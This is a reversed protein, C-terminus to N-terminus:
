SSDSFFQMWKLNMHHMKCQMQWSCNERAKIEQVILRQYVDLTGSFNWECHNPPCQRQQSTSFPSLVCIYFYAAAAADFMFCPYCSVTYFDKKECKGARRTAERQSASYLLEADAALPSSFFPLLFSRNFFWYFASSSFLFWSCWMVSMCVSEKEREWEGSYVRKAISALISWANSNSHEFQSSTCHLSSSSRCPM